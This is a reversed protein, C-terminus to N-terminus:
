ADPRAALLFSQGALLWQLPPLRLYLAVALPWKPLASKSTFPLFRRRLEQVELGVVEAAGEERFPMRGDRITRVRVPDIDYIVTRLGSDACVLAFPLGVRGGGGIVCVDRDFSM